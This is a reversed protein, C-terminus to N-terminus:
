ARARARRPAVLVGILGGVVLGAGASWAGFKWKEAQLSPAMEAVTPEYPPPPPPEEAGTESVLPYAQKLAVARLWIQTYNM